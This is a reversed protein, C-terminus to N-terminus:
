NFNNTYGFSIVQAYDAKRGAFLGTILLGVLVIIKM